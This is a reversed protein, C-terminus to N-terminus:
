KAVVVFEVRRNLQRGEDTANSGIPATEGFGRSRLRDQAIGHSVLYTVVAAARGESLTMNDADSGVTDTHGRVEIKLTPMSALLGVLRDLERTSEPLLATKATEFFVNNLRITQGVELPVLVLNREFREGEKATVLDIRDSVAVYGAAAARFAYDEGIPLAIQYRGDGAKAAAHGAGQGTKLFEYVIGAPLPKGAPDTVKGWVFAVPRPRLAAPLEFEYLDEKMLPGIATFAFRGTADVAINMDDDPTNVEPGLNEPASWKAWTEDLRRTLWLDFGGRGGDRNSAFYLTKNDPAMFPSLDVKPSNIARGLNAPTTWTGDRELTSVYLDRDGISQANIISFFAHRGDPALFIELRPSTNRFDRVKLPDPMTWGSATRNSWGFPAPTVAGTAPAPAAGPAMSGLVEFFSGQKEANAALKQWRQILADRGAGEGGVLLTNNDPLVSGIWMTTFDDSLPEPMRKAPGWGGGPLRESFWISQHMPANPSATRASAPATKKMSAIMDELQKRMAPDTVSAMTKELEAIAAQGQADAAAMTEEGAPSERVFYLTSGDATVIPLVERYNTNVEPGLKRKGPYSQAQLGSSHSSLAVCSLVVLCLSRVLSRRM